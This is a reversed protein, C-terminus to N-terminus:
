AGLQLRTDNELLAKLNPWSVDNMSYFAHLYVAVEQPPYKALLTEVAAKVKDDDMAPPLDEVAGNEHKLGLADLFDALMSLNKKLLWARIVNGAVLDMRPRSLMGVMDTHRDKRPKRELFAPRVKRAEAVAAMTARYLDRDNDHTYELIQEALAPSMFGFIEHATFM